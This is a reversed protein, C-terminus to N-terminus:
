EIPERCIMEGWKTRIIEKGHYQLREATDNSLNSFRELMCNYFEEQTFSYKPNAFSFVHGNRTLLLIDQENQAVAVVDKRIMREFNSFTNGDKTHIIWMKKHAYVGIVGTVLLEHGEDWVRVTYGELLHLHGDACLALDWLGDPYSLIEQTFRNQSLNYKQIVNGQLCACFNSNVYLGGKISTMVQGVYLATIRNGAPVWVRKLGWPTKLELELPIVSENKIVTLRPSKVPNLNEWGFQVQTKSTLSKIPSNTQGACQQEWCTLMAKRFPQALNDPYEGLVMSTLCIRAAANARMEEPLFYTMTAAASLYDEPAHQPNLYLNAGAVNEM